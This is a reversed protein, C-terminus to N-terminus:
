EARESVLLGLIDVEVPRDQGLFEFLVRVREASPLVEVIRGTLGRFAGEVMEVEDGIGLKREITLLNDGQKESVFERKLEEVFQAGVEPLIGGFQVAGTVGSTHLISRLDDPIRFKALFYGPFVPEVWWVPGRRTPKRYRIRPCFVEVSEKRELTAAAVHERKTQARLCYWRPEGGREELSM